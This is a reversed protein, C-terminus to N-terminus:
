VVGGPLAPGVYRLCLIMRPLGDLWPKKPRTQGTLDPWVAAEAMRGPFETVHEFDPAFGPQGAQRDHIRGAYCIKNTTSWLECGDCGMTPNVTSDCWEISSKITM